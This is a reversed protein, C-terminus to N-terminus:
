CGSTSQIDSSNIIYQAVDRHAHEDIHGGSTRKHGCKIAYDIFSQNDFKTIHPLTYDQLFKISDSMHWSQDFMLEDIATVIFQIELQLLTDICLKVVQLSALKDRFESHYSKYYESSSSPLCTKWPSAVGPDDVRNWDRYNSYPGPHDPIVYDFRDIYTWNVIFFDDTGKSSACQDLVQNAIFFNGAGPWAFCKYDTNKHKAILAPWTLGSPMPPTTATKLDISCDPLESGWTFSCGFSKVTM